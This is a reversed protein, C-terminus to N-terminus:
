VFIFFIIDRSCTKLLIMEPCHIAGRRYAHIGEASNYVTYSADVHMGNVHDRQGTRGGGFM